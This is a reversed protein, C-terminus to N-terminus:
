LRFLAKLSVDIAEDIMARDIEHVPAWKAAAALGRLHSITDCRRYAFRRRKAERRHRCRRGGSM